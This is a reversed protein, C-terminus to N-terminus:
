LLLVKGSATLDPNYFCTFDLNSNPNISGKEMKSVNSNQKTFKYESPKGLPEFPASDAQWAPSRPKIGPNSLDGPSPFPLESWHEQRFFEMSLPVQWAVTWSNCLTLCSQDILVCVYESPEYVLLPLPHYSASALVSSITHFNDSVCPLILQLDWLLNNSVM